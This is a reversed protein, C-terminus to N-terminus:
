RVWLMLFLPYPPDSAVRHASTAPLLSMEVSVASFAFAKTTMFCSLLGLAAGVAAPQDQLIQEKGVGLDVQCLGLFM